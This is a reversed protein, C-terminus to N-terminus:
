LEAFMANSHIANVTESITINFVFSIALNKLGMSEFKIKATGVNVTKNGVKRLMGKSTGTNNIGGWKNKMKMNKADMNMASVFDEHVFALSPSILVKTWNRWTLLM